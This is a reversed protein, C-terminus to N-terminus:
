GKISPSKNELLTSCRKCKTEKKIDVESVTPSFSMVCKKNKCHELGLTHGLEHLIEKRARSLIKDNKVKGGDVTMKLRYTSVVCGGGGLYALGFIYNRDGYFIDQSTLGISKEGGGIKEIKEILLEANYQGRENNYFSSSLTDISKTSVEFGYRDIIIDKSVDVIIDDVDGLVVLDTDM